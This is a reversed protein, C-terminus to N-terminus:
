NIIIYGTLTDLNGVTISILVGDTFSQQIPASIIEYVDTEGAVLSYVQVTPANGYNSLMAATYTIVKQTVGTFNAITSLAGSVGQCTFNCGLNNKEYTGGHLQFEIKDYEQAIKFKVPKCGNADNVELYYTGGYQTLLGAPIYDIDIVWFGTSDTDFERAYKNSFKDTLIWTYTTLPELQAYVQIETSCKALFDTFASNCSM